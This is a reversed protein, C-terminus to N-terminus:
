KFEGTDARIYNDNAILYHKDREENYKKEATAMLKGMDVDYEGVAIEIVTFSFCKM